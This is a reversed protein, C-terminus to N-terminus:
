PACRLWHCGHLRRGASKRESREAKVGPLAMRPPMGTMKGQNPEGSLEGTRTGAPEGECPKARVEGQVNRKAARM